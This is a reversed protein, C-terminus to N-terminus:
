NIFGVLQFPKGITYPLGLSEWYEQLSVRHALWHSLKKNIWEILIAFYVFRLKCLLLMFFYKEFLRSSHKTQYVSVGHGLV